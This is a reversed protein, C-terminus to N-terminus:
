ILHHVIIVEVQLKSVWFIVNFAFFVCKVCSYSSFGGKGNGVGFGIGYGHGRGLGYGFGQGFGM